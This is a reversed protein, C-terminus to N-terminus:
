DVGLLWLVRFWRLLAFAYSRCTLPGTVTCNRVYVIL